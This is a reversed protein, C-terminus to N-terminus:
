LVDLDEPKNIVFGGGHCYLLVPLVKDAPQSEPRYLRVPIPGHPSPIEDTTITAGGPIPGNNIKNGDHAMKRAEAVSLRWLRPLTSEEIDALLQAIGPDLKAM